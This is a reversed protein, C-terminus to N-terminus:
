EFIERLYREFRGGIMETAEETKESRVDIWHVLLRDGIVDLTFTGPTLTISNALIMRALDHTLRTRIVVIGPRIPLRPDLIRRAVDLNAKVIEWLLVVAFVVSFWTRRLSLPPMGLGSYTRSFFAALILSVVGGALLEQWHLSSTLALWIVMLTLLLYTFNRLAHGEAAPARM